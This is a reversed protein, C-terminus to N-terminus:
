EKEVTKRVLNKAFKLLSPPLAALNISIPKEKKRKKHKKKEAYFLGGDSLSMLGGSPSTQFVTQAEESPPKQPPLKTIKGGRQLFEEITEKKSM